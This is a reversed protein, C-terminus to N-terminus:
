GAVPDVQDPRDDPRHGCDAELEDEFAFGGLCAVLGGLADQVLIGLAESRLSADSGSGYPHLSLAGAAWVLVSLAGQGVRNVVFTALAVPCRCRTSM